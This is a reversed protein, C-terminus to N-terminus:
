STVISLLKNQIYILKKIEVNELYKKVKSSDKALAVIDDESIEREVVLEDRVKGNIQVPVTITEDVVLDPDYGPWTATFISKKHGFDSWIEEAMHPAFPALLIIFQEFDNKSITETEGTIAPEATEKRDKTLVNVFSMMSSIATNFRFNDIDETVKKITKNLEAAVKPSSNATFQQKQSLEYIKELFRRAGKVGDMSWAIAQTFPGMFMEYVRLSDAGFDQVIDDPNIVNNWRKSMKRGDEALILGVHILKNFPEKTSVVGEDYLFKHWFRAYLLHRTAHEIGGVYLDVPMWDKEKRPDILEKTNKPDIYRLYYWSSGAWQPM